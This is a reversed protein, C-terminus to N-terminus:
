LSSTTSGHETTFITSLTPASLTLIGHSPHEPNLYTVGETWEHDYVAEGNNLGDYAEQQWFNYLKERFDEFEEEGRGAAFVPVCLALALVTCLLVSVAKRNLLKM